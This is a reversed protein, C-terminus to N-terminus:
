SRTEQSRTSTPPSSPIAPRVMVVKERTVVAEGPHGGRAKRVHRRETYCVSVKSSKGAKSHFAAIAATELIAEKDPETRSGSRRLIVHSGPVQRAHFWLDDPRAVKHTLIDNDRDSKGVLVEWGGSVEYTRFRPRDESRTAGQRREGNSLKREIELLREEGANEVESAIRGLERAERELQELRRPTKLGRREAKRARRFYVEANQQVGMSADLEVQVRTVGDFDTLTVNRRGRPVAEQRTLLLQGKHRYEEAHGADELESRVKEIAREARRIARSLTTGLDARRREVDLLPWFSRFMYAAADNLTPFVLAGSTSDSPGAARGDPDEHPAVGPSLRAHLRGSADHWWRVVADKGRPPRAGGHSAEAGLSDEHEDQPTRDRGLSLAVTRRTNRGVANTRSFELVAGPGPRIPTLATITSGAAYALPALPGATKRMERPQADPPGEAYFVLPLAKMTVVGLTGRVGPREPTEKLELLFCEPGPRVVRTVVRGQVLPAIETILKEATERDV